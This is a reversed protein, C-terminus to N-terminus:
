TLPAAPRSMRPSPPAEVKRPCNDRALLSWVLLLAALLPVGLLLVALLLSDLPVGAERLAGLFSRWSCRSNRSLRHTM